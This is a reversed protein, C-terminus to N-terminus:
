RRAALHPGTGAVNSREFTWGLPGDLLSAGRGEDIQIADAGAPKLGLAAAILGQLEGLEGCLLHEGGARALERLLQGNGTGPIPRAPPLGAQVPAPVPPRWLWLRTADPTSDPPDVRV